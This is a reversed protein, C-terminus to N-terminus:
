NIVARSTTNRPQSPPLEAGPASGPQQRRICRIEASSLVHTQRGGAEDCGMENSVVRESGVRGAVRNEGAIANKKCM